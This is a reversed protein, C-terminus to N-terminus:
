REWGDGQPQQQGSCVGRAATISVLTHHITDKIKGFMCCFDLATDVNGAYTGTRATYDGILSLCGRCDCVDRFYLVLWKFFEVGGMANVMAPESEPPPAPM